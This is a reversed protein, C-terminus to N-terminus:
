YSTYSILLALRSLKGMIKMIMVELIHRYILIIM